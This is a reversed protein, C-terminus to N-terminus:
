GEFGLALVVEELFSERIYGTQNSPGKEPIEPTVVMMSNIMGDTDTVGVLSPAERSCPGPRIGLQSGLRM